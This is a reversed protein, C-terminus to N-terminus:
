KGLFKSVTELFKEPEEVNPAHGSQDFEAFAANPIFSALEKGRPPPNLGDYSGSIVLTEATITPLAARFDFGELAKNAAAMEAVSLEPELQAMEEQWNQVASLNHFVYKSLYEMQKQEDIGELEDAYRILLEQTSSTKGHAKSVVLVLKEVRDPHALVIGQAIYSGMSVGLVHAKEVGVHDLLAIADEIHDNLTFKAPKDSQGHGRCDFAIVRYRDKFYEIERRFMHHSAGLGHLLMLPPGDGKEEYYLRIGNSTFEPMEKGGKKSRRKPTIEKQEIGAKASSTSGKQIIRFSAQIGTRRFTFDKM